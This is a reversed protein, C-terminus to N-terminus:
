LSTVALAFKEVFIIATYATSHRLRQRLTSRRLGRTGWLLPAESRLAHVLIDLTLFKWLFPCGTGCRTDHGDKARGLCHSGKAYGKLTAHDAKGPLDLQEYRKDYRIERVCIGMGLSASSCERLHTGAPPFFFLFFGNYKSLLHVCRGTSVEFPLTMRVSTLCSSPWVVCHTAGRLNGMCGMLKNTLFFYFRTPGKTGRMRKARNGLKSSVREM